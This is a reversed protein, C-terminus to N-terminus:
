ADYTVVHGDQLFWSHNRVRVLEVATVCDFAAENQKSSVQFFFYEIGLQTKEEANQRSLPVHQTDRKLRENTEKSMM